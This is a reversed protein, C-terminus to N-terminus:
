DVASGPDAPDPQRPADDESDEAGPPPSGGAPTQPAPFSGSEGDSRDDDVPGTRPETSRENTPM